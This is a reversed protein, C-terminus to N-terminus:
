LKYMYGSYNLRDTFLRSYTFKIKTNNIRNFVMKEVSARYGAYTYDYSIYYTPPFMDNLGNKTIAIRSNTIEFNQIITSDGKHYVRVRDSYSVRWDGTTQNRQTDIMFYLGTDMVISNAPPTPTNKVQKSCAAILATIGFLFIIKKM